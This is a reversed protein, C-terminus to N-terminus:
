VLRDFGIPNAVFNPNIVFVDEEYGSIWDDEELELESDDTLYFTVGLALLRGWFADGSVHNATDALWGHRVAEYKFIWGEDNLAYADWAAQLVALDVDCLGRQKLNTLMLWALPDNLRVIRTVAPQTLPVSFLLCDYLLWIADFISTSSRALLKDFVAAVNSSQGKDHNQIIDFVAKATNPYNALMQLLYVEYLEWKEDSCRYRRLYHSLVNKVIRPDDHERTLAVAEKLLNKIASFPVSEEHVSYAEEAELILDPIVVRLQRRWEEEIPIPPGSLIRTKSEGVKYRYKHLIERLIQLAQDADRLNEFYLEYDDVYRGGVCRINASRLSQLYEFDIRSLIIESIIRSTAPGTPIGHTQQEDGDRLVRDITNGALANWAARAAVREEWAGQYQANRMQKAVEKTHLAWAVSHTYTSDYHEVIDTTLLVSMASSRSFVTDQFQNKTIQKIGRDADFSIPTLSLTSADLVLKVDLWNNQLTKSLLAYNYPNLLSWRRIAYKKKYVDYKYPITDKNRDLFAEFNSYEHGFSQSTYIKPLNEPIFGSSLLANLDDDSM